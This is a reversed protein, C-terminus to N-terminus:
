KVFAKVLLVPIDSLNKITYSQAAAPVVFTEAYNFIQSVGNQTTIEIKSGEVLMWVHCKNNTNITVEHTINYRYVDYFHDKHTPLHEITYSDHQEIVYPKSILEKEVTDGSRNFNVNAMGRDINIPRPKGDLDLRLWDYMKFTFIYPASSIELVMNNSGSAHITGHPILFLDHKNAEFKQIYRDVDLEISKEQSYKLAQEFDLPEVGDKFGLYVEADDKCDLIYYTEDQTFPMGFEQKIYQPSPHCQISLNGGDFTDLFDFRIPFDHKFTEACDGLINKYNNFMITDFSVELIFGDSELLLGNELVMLEFSWALNEVNSNVGELHDKMWSGGWAGPEFWPRPRFVNSAMATLGARLDEGKMFLITEPRQGDIIIDINPLLHEKHKNLVVWDIFFFRKYTSKNDTLVEMGLNGARGARARFQLENKPLDIYLIPADWGTLAAGPGVVINIDVSPDKVIKSLKDKDFWDSLTKDTIKGFLPDDGGLYPELMGNIEDAPKMAADVHFWRASKGIQALERDISKIIDDWFIGQYGDIVVSSSQSIFQALNEYGTKIKSKGINFAPYADYAIESSEEKKEPILFQETKRVIKNKSIEKEQKNKVYAVAGIIAAKDWLECIKVDLSNELNLKGLFKDMFLPAAKAIGGGLVIREPKFSDVWPKMFDAFNEAFLDFLGLAKLDNENALKAIAEVSAINENNIDNWQQVFWRTSFFDDAIGDKFPINYLYGNTPVGEGVGDQMEGEILFTSGFGTGLTMIISKASNIAAGSVYEGIAFSEADNIFYVPTGGAIKQLEQKVNLGFLAEYKKVGYIKSIGNEYDFPGPMAVGVGAISEFNSVNSNSMVISFLEECCKFFESCSSNSDHAAKHYSEKILEGTKANVLAGSIHSGGVDIGLYYLSM